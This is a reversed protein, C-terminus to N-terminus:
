NSFGKGVSVVVGGHRKNDDIYHNIKDVVGRRDSGTVEGQAWPDNHVSSEEPLYDGIHKHVASVPVNQEIHENKENLFHYETEGTQTNIKLIIKLDQDGDLINSM